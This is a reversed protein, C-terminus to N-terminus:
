IVGICFILTYEKYDLYVKMVMMIRGKGFIENMMSIKAEDNLNICITYLKENLMVYQHM